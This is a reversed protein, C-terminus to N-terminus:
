LVDVEGGLLDSLATTTDIEEGERLQKIVPDSDPILQGQRDVDTAGCIVFRYPGDSYGGPKTIQYVIYALKM